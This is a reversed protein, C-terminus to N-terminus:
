VLYLSIALVLGKKSSFRGRVTNVNNDTEEDSNSPNDTVHGGANRTIKGSPPIAADSDSSYVKTYNSVNKSTEGKNQFKSTKKSHKADIKSVHPTTPFDIDFIGTRKAFRTGQGSSDSSYDYVNKTQGKEVDSMESDSNVRNKKAEKEKRTFSLLEDLADRPPNYNPGNKRKNYNTKIKKAM